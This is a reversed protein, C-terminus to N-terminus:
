HRRECNVNEFSARPLRCHCIVRSHKVDFDKIAPSRSTYSDLESLRYRHSEVHHESQRKGREREREEKRRESWERLDPNLITRIRKKERKLNKSTSLYFLQVIWLKRCFITCHLFVILPLMLNRKSLRMSVFNVASLLKRRPVIVGNILARNLFSRDIPYILEILLFKNFRWRYGGTENGVFRFSPTFSSELSPMTIAVVCRAFTSMQRGTTKWM